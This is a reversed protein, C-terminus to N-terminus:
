RRGIWAWLIPNDRPDRNERTDESSLAVAVISFLALLAFATVLVM